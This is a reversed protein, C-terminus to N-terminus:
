WGGSAASSSTPPSGGPAGASGSSLARGSGSRACRTRRVWRGLDPEPLDGDLLPGIAAVWAPDLPLRVGDRVLALGGKVTVRVVVTGLADTEGEGPTELRALAMRVAGPGVAQGHLEFPLDGHAPLRVPFLLEADSVRRDHDGLVIRDVRVGGTVRTTLRVGAETRGGNHLTGAVRLPGAPGEWALETRGLDPPLAARAEAAEREAAERTLLPAQEVWSSGSWALVRVRDHELVVWRDGAIWHGGAGYSTDCLRVLRGDPDIRCLSLKPDDDPVLGWVAGGFAFLDTAPGYVDTQGSTRGDEDVIGVSGGRGTWATHVAFGGPIRAAGLEYEEHIGSLRLALGDDLCWVLGQSPDVVVTGHEGPTLRASTGLVGVPRLAGAGPREWRVHVLRRPPLPPGVIRLADRGQPVLAWGGAADVAGSPWGVLESWAALFAPRPKELRADARPPIERVLVGDDWASLGGQGWGAVIRRGDTWVATDFQFRGM